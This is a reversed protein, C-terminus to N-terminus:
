HVLFQAAIFLAFRRATSLEEDKVLDRQLAENAWKPGHNGITRAFGELEGAEVVDLGTSRLSSLLRKCAKSPDGPPVFASGVTKATSWASTRKVLRQLESRSCEPLIPEKVEALVQTIQARLDDTSLEPRKADVAAKVIRWDKEIDSWAGGLAEVVNRLPQDNSLVDFDAVARVNVDLERLARIVVALRDKGGCHTFMLDPKKESGHISDWAADILASYFRCDADAECVVVGEHFLGDLINSHRLLPDSWLDELRQGNLVRVVNGDSTRRIRVVKLSKNGADLIGRLIDSSHTAIMLQRGPQKDEVLLRGLLKAQPPHLFAEPEDVLLVSEQGVSSALLIGAFSRMGDGQTQLQPLRELRQVFSHSVRDEGAELEPRQGVLLPVQSGAGRHVVLDVGFAKRFQASLSAELEDFRQLYHIPHHLGEQQFAIAPAPNGIHLREDASLFHCLWRCLSGLNPSNTWGYTIQGEYVQAGLALYHPNGPQDDKRKGWNSAWALVDAATGSKAYEVAHVVPSVSTSEQLKDRLARLTASKGANNPGVFLVVEGPQIAVEGGSSFTIKSISISPRQYPVSEESHLDSDALTM